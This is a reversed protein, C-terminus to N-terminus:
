GIWIYYMFDNSQDANTRVRVWMSHQLMALQVWLRYTPHDKYTRILWIRLVIARPLGQIPNRVSFATWCRAFLFPTTCKSLTGQCEALEYFWAERALSRCRFANWKLQWNNKKIEVWRRRPHSAAPWLLATYKGKERSGNCPMHIAVLLADNTCTGRM